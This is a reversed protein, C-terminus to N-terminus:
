CQLFEISSDTSGDNVLILETTSPLSNLFRTIRERLLPLVEAENYVPIVLSVTAAYPRASLRFYTSEQM